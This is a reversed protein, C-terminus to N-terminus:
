EVAMKRATEFDPQMNHLLDALHYLGEDPINASTMISFVYAIESQLALYNEVPCGGTKVSITFGDKDFRVM